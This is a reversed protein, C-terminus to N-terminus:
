VDGDNHKEDNPQHLGKAHESGQIVKPDSALKWVKWFLDRNYRAGGYPPRTLEAIEELRRELEAVHERSVRRRDNVATRRDHEVKAHLEPTVEIIHESM